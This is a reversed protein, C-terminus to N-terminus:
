RYKVTNYLFLSASLKPLRRDNCWNGFRSNYLQFIHTRGESELTKSRHRSRGNRENISTDTPYLQKNITSQLSQIDRANNYVTLIVTRFSNFRATYRIFRIRYVASHYMALCRLSFSNLQWQKLISPLLYFYIIWNGAIDCNLYAVPHWKLREIIKWLIIMM